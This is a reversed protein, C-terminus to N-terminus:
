RSWTSSRSPATSACFAYIGAGDDAYRHIQAGDALAPNAARLTPSSARDHQYLPPTPTSATRRARPTGGIVDARRRVAAVKSAFMDQRADKDGGAGIFGQEDGYYVVPQGRTLYM